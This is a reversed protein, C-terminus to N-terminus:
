KAARVASYVDCWDQDHNPPIHVDVAFGKRVLLDGLAYAHHQGVFNADNDGAVIVSKVGDPPVWQSLLGANTTAWCPYGTMLHYAIATEIGEAVAMREAQPFLRVACGALPGSPTMMKKQASVPAKKGDQLYTVHISVSKDGAASVMRSIMAPYRGSVQAGDYYALGSHERVGPPVILGRGVLYRWVNGGEECSHSESAIKALRPRPDSKAKATHMHASNVLPDILGCADKFSVGRVKMVLETGAGAGCRNCYWTGNGDKDDYRFRDEGGCMPCPGHRNRLYKEEIGVQRLIDFWRGRAADVTKTRM